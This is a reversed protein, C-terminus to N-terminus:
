FQSSIWLHSGSEFLESFLYMILIGGTMEDLHRKKASDYEETFIAWMVRLVNWVCPMNYMNDMYSKINLLIRLIEFM